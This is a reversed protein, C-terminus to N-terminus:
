THIVAKKLIVTDWHKKKRENKMGTYYRWLSYSKLITKNIKKNFSLQKISNKQKRDFRLIFWGYTYVYERGKPRGGM